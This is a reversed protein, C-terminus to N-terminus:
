IPPLCIYEGNSVIAIIGGCKGPTLKIPKISHTIGAPIFISGPSTIEYIEMEDGNGLSVEVTIAGSDGIILYTEDSGEPHRHRDAWSIGPNKALEENFHLFFYFVWFNAESVRKSNMLIPYFFNDPKHFPLSKAVKLGRAIYKEYKKNM